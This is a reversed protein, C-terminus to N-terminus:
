LLLTFNDRYEIIENLILASVLSQNFGWPNRSNGKLLIGIKM